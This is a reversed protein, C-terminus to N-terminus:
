VSVGSGAPTRGGTRACVIAVAPAREAHFRASCRLAGAQRCAACTHRVRARQARQAARPRGAENGHTGPHPPEPWGDARGARLHMRLLRRAVHEDEQGPLVLDLRERPEDRRPACRAPGLRGRGGCCGADPARARGRRVAQSHLCAGHGLVALPRHRRRSGCSMVSSLGARPHLRPLCQPRLRGAPRRRTFRARRHPLSAAASPDPLPASCTAGM